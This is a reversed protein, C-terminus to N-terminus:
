KVSQCMGEFYYERRAICHSSEWSRRLHSRTCHHLFLGHARFFCSNISRTNMFVEATVIAEEDYPPFGLLQMPWLRSQLTYPHFCPCKARRSLVCHGPKTLAPTIVLFYKKWFDVTRQRWSQTVNCDAVGLESYFETLEEHLKVPSDGDEYFRLFPHTGKKEKRKKKKNQEM